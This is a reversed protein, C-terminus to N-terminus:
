HSRPHQRHRALAGRPIPKRHQTPASQSTPLGAQEIPNLDPSYPPLFLFWAGKKAQSVARSERKKHTPLNDLIVLDGQSLIPARRSQV